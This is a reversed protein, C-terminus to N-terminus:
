GLEIILPKQIFNTTAATDFIVSITINKGSTDQLTGESVIFKPNFQFIQLIYSLALYM